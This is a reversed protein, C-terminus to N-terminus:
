SSDEEAQFTGKIYRAFSKGEGYIKHSYGVIATKAVRWPEHNQM